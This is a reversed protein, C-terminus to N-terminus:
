GLISDGGISKLYEMVDRYAKLVISSQIVSKLDYKNFYIDEHTYKGNDLDELYISGVGLVLDGETSRNITLGEFYFEEHCGDCIHNHIETNVLILDQHTEIIQKVKEFEKETIPKSKITKKMKPELKDSDDLSSFFSNNQIPKDRVIIKYYNENEDEDDEVVLVEHSMSSPIVCNSQVKYKFIVEGFENDFM